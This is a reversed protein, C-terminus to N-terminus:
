FNVTMVEFRVLDTWAEAKYCQHIEPTIHDGRSSINTNQLSPEKAIKKKIYTCINNKSGLSLSISQEDLSKPDEIPFSPWGQYM